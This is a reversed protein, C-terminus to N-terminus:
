LPKQMIYDEMLFDNGIAIDETETIEFNKKKYFEIASTNYRNVNLELIKSGRTKAIEAAQEILYKGLGTGQFETLLYLKHLKTKYPNQKYNHEISMFGAPDTNSKLIYFICGNEYQKQLSKTSYMMEMMYDIQDDSLIPKFTQPWVKLALERVQYLAPQKVEELLNKM